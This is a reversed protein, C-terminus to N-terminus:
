PLLVCVEPNIHIDVLRQTGGHEAEKHAVATAQTGASLVAGSDNIFM